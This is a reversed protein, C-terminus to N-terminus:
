EFLLKEIMSKEDDSIDTYYMVKLFDDPSWEKAEKIIERCVNLIEPKQSASYFKYAVDIRDVISWYADYPPFDKAQMEQILWCDQYEACISKVRGFNEINRVYVREGINYANEGYVELRHACEMASSVNKFIAMANM